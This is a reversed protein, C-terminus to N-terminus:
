PQSERLRAALTRLAEAPSSGHASALFPLNDGDKVTAAYRGPSDTMAMLSLRSHAPLAAEAEAWAADLTGEFVCDTGADMHEAPLTCSTENGCWTTM